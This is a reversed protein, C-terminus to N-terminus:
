HYSHSFFEYNRNYRVRCHADGRFRGADPRKRRPKKGAGTRWKAITLSWPRIIDRPWMPRAIAMNRRRAKLRRPVQPTALATFHNRGAKTLIHTAFIDANSTTSDNRFLAKGKRICTDILRSSSSKTMVNRGWFMTAIRCLSALSSRFIHRERRHSITLSVTGSGPSMLDQYIRGRRKGAGRDISSLRSAKM